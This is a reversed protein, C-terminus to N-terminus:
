YLSFKNLINSRQVCEANAGALIFFGLWKKPVKGWEIFKTSANKFRATGKKGELDKLWPNFASKSRPPPGGGIYTFM